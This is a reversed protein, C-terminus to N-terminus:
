AYGSRKPYLFTQHFLRAGMTPELMARANESTPASEIMRKRLATLSVRSTPKIKKAMAIPM